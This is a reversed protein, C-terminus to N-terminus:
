IMTKNSYMKNTIFIIILWALIMIDKSRLNDSCIGSCVQRDACTAAFELIWIFQYMKGRTGNFSNCAKM